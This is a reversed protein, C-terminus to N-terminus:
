SIKTCLAAEAQRHMWEVRLTQHGAFGLSRHQNPQAFIPRDEAAGHPQEALTSLLGGCVHVIGRHEIRLATGRQKAEDHDPAAAGVPIMHWGHPLIISEADLVLRSDRVPNLVANGGHIKQWFLDNCDPMANAIPECTMARTMWFANFRLNSNDRLGIVAIIDLPRLELLLGLQKQPM